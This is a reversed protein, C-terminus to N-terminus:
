SFIYILIVNTLEPPIINKFCMYVTFMYYDMENLFNNLDSKEYMITKNKRKSWEQKTAIKIIKKPTTLKQHRLGHKSSYCYGSGWHDMYKVIPETKSMNIFEESNFYSPSSKNIWRILDYQKLTLEYIVGYNRTDYSEENDAGSCYSDHDAVIVDYEWILLLEM